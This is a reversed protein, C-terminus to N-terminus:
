GQIRRNKCYLKPEIQLSLDSKVYCWLLGFPTIRYKQDDTVMAEVDLLTQNLDFKNQPSQIYFM